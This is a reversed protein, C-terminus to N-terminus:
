KAPQFGLTYEEGQEEGSDDAPCAGCSGPPIAGGAELLACFNTCMLHADAQKLYVTIAQDSAWEERDGDKFWGRAWVLATVAPPRTKM